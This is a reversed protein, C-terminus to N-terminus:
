IKEKRYAGLYLVNDYYSSNNENKNITEANASVM